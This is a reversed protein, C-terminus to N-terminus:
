VQRSLTTQFAQILTDLNSADTDDLGDGVSAFSCEHTCPEGSSRGFMYLTDSTQASTNRTDTDISSGGKYIKAVNNTTRSAITLGLDTNSVRNLGTVQINSIIDEGLVTYALSLYNNNSSLDLFNLSNQGTSLNRAYYSFHTSNSTLDTNFVIHTNTTSNGTPLAGTSSHTIANTGGYTLRFAGDTDLPNVLNYKHTDATGGVFPYVAVMKTWLSDAKLGVVLDNIANQQTSDSIGTADIFAQADADFGGVAKNGLMRKIM